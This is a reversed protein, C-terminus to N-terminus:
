SYFNCNTRPVRKKERTSIVLCYIDTNNQMWSQIVVEEKQKWQQKAVMAEDIRDFYSRCVSLIPGHLLVVQTVSAAPSHKNRLETMTEDSLELTEADTDASLFTPAM